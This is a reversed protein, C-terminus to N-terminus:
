KSSRNNISESLSKSNFDLLSNYSKMLNILSADESSLLRLYSIFFDFDNIELFRSKSFLDRYYNNSTSCATLFGDLDDIFMGKIPLDYRLLLDKTWYDKEDLIVLGPKDCALGEYTLATISDITITGSCSLILEKTISSEPWDRDIIVYNDRLKGLIKNLKTLSNSQSYSAKGVYIIFFGKNTANSPNFIDFNINNVFLRSNTKSICSSFSFHYIKEPIYKGLSTNALVGPVNGQWQTGYKAPFPLGVITEPFIFNIPEGEHQNKDDILKELYYSKLEPFVNFLQRFNQRMGMLEISFEGLKYVKSILKYYSFLGASRDDFPPAVFIHRM